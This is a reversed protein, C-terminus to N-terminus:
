EEVIMELSGKGDEAEVAALLKLDGVDERGGYFRKTEDREDPGPIYIKPPQVLDKPQLPFRLQGCVPCRVGAAANPVYATFEVRRTEGSGGSPGPCDEHVFPHRMAKVYVNTPKHRYRVSVPGSSADLRAPPTGGGFPGAIGAGTEILWPAEDSSWGSQLRTDAIPYWGADLVEPPKRLIRYEPGDKIYLDGGSILITEGPLGILRKIFNRVLRPKRPEEPRYDWDSDYRFVVIDFREPEGGVWPLRSFALKNTYIRDGFDEHGVLTPEMSGTPIKFAEFVYRRILLAAALALALSLAFNVASGRRAAPRGDNRDESGHGGGRGDRDAPAPHDKRDYGPQGARDARPEGGRDRRDPAKGDKRDRGGGSKGM